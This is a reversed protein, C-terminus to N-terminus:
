SLSLAGTSGLGASLVLESSPGPRPAAPDFPLVGPVPSRLPPTMLCCLLSGPAGVAWSSGRCGPQVRARAPVGQVRQRVRPKRREGTPGRPQRHTGSTTRGRCGPGATLARSVRTELPLSRPKLHPGLEPTLGALWPTLGGRHPAAHLAGSFVALVQWRAAEGSGATGRSRGALHDRTPRSTEQAQSAAAGQAGAGAHPGARPLHPLLDCAPLARDEPSLVWSAAPGPTLGVRLPHEWAGCPLAPHPSPRANNQPVLSHM